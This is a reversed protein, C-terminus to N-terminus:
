ARGEVLRIRREIGLTEVPDPLVVILSRGESVELLLRAISAETAPDLGAFPDDALLVEPRAVIARAVGCRKKMGGSLVEPRKLAADKLGVRELAELARARAEEGPVRRKRLPLEVNELVTLSDFLADTQFVMGFAVQAARRAEADLEAVVRQGWRVRGATPRQLGALCKLLTTKGSGAPGHIVARTGAPFVLDLHDLAKVKGFSVTLSEAAVEM